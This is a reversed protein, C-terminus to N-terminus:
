LRRFQEAQQDIACMAVFSHRRHRFLEILLDVIRQDFRCLSRWEFENANKSAPRQRRTTDLGKPSGTATSRPVGFQEEFERSVTAPMIAGISGLTDAVGHHLLNTKLKTDDTSM